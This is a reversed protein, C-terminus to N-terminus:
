AAEMVIGHLVMQKAEDLDDEFNESGAPIV